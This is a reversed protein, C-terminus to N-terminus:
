IRIEGSKDYIPVVDYIDRQLCFDIDASLGLGMMYNYHKTTTLCSKLDGKAGEYLKSLVQAIDSLAYGYTESLIGAMAGACLGDEMTFRDERGACVLAVDHGAEALKRCVATMNLFSGIYVSEAARANYIARTGNTTSLIIKKGQVEDRSYSMPSNGKDFGEVKVANREGGLIVDERRFKNRLEAAEAVTVVPIVSAAGNNLAEAIVSTARFVDIVCVASHMVRDAVVEGATLIIDLNM